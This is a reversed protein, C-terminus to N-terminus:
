FDDKMLIAAILKFGYGYKPESLSICLTAPGIRYTGDQKALYEHELQPDTLALTYGVKNHRFSVRVKRAGGKGQFGPEYAVKLEVRSVNVLRLSDSLEQLRHEPVKDNRGNQTSYGDIWLAGDIEDIANQVQGWSGQGSKRWARASCLHNELQHLYPVPRLLDIEIIDLLSVNTADAYRLQSTPIEHTTSRSVPRIWSGIGRKGIEKGAVCRGGTKKSNALCLITKTYMRVVM